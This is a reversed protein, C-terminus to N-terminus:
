YRTMMASYYDLHSRERTLEQQDEKSCISFLHGYRDAWPTPMGRKDLPVCVEAIMGLVVQGKEKHASSLIREVRAIHRKWVLSRMCLLTRWMVFKATSSGGLFGKVSLGHSVFYPHKKRPLVGKDIVAIM